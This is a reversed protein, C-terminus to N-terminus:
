IKGLANGQSVMVVTLIVFVTVVPFGDTRKSGGSGKGVGVCAM